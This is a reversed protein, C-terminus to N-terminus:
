PVLLEAGLYRANEILNRWGKVSKPSTPLKSLARLKAQLEDTVDNERLFVALSEPGMADELKVGRDTILYDVSVELADAIRRLFEGSANKIRGKEIATITSTPIKTLESLETGKLRRYERVNAIRQGVTLKM